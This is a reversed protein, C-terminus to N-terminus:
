GEVSREKYRKEIRDLLFKAEIANTKKIAESARVLLVPALPTDARSEERAWYTLAAAILSYDAIKEANEVAQGYFHRAEDLNGERFAALGYNAIAAIRVSNTMDGKIASLQERAQRTRGMSGYSFALNIRLSNDNPNAVQGLNALSIASEYDELLSAALHSAM